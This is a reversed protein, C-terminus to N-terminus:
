RTGVISEGVGAIRRGDQKALEIPEVAHGSLRRFALIIANDPENEVSYGIERVHLGDAAPPSLRVAAQRRSMKKRDAAGRGGVGEGRRRPSQRRGSDPHSACQRRPRRHLVRRAARSCSRIAPMRVQETMRKRDGLSGSVPVIRIFAWTGRMFSLKMTASKIPTEIQGTSNAAIGAM